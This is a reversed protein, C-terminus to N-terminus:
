SEEDHSQPGGPLKVPGIPFKAGERLDCFKVPAIVRGIPWILCLEFFVWVLCFDFLFAQHAVRMEENNYSCVRTTHFKFGLATDGLDSLFQARWKAYTGQVYVWDGINVSEPPIPNPHVFFKM